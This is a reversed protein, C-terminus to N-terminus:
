LVLRSPRKPPPLSATLAERWGRLGPITLPPRRRGRMFLFRDRTFHPRPLYPRPLLLPRGHRAVFGSRWRARATTCPGLGDARLCQASVSLAWPALALPSCAGYSCVLGLPGLYLRTLAKASPRPRISLPWCLGAARSRWASLRPWLDSALPAPAGRRRALGLPGAVLCLDPYRGLASATGPSPAQAGVPAPQLACAFLLLGPFLLTVFVGCVFPMPVLLPSTFLTSPRLRPLLTPCFRAASATGAHTRPRCTSSACAHWTPTWPDLGTLM